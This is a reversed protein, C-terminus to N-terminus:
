KRFSIPSLCASIALAPPQRASCGAALVRGSAQVLLVFAGADLRDQPLYSALRREAGSRDGAQFLSADNSFAASAAAISLSTTRRASAAMRSHETIMGFFHSAAVVMLFSVILVPIIRKLIHETQPFRRSITEM